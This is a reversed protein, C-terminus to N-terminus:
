DGPFADGSATTKYVFRGVTSRHVIDRELIASIFVAFCVKRMNNPPLTQNYLLTSLITKSIQLILFISIPAPHEDLFAMIDSDNKKSIHNM